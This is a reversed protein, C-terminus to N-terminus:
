LALAREFTATAQATHGDKHDCNALGMLSEAVVLNNKGFAQERIFLSRQYLQRASAVSEIQITYVRAFGV